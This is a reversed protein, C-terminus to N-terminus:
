QIEESKESTIGSIAAIDCYLINVHLSENKNSDSNWLTAYIIM